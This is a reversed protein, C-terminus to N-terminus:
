EALTAGSFDFILFVKGDASFTVPVDKNEILVIWNRDILTKVSDGKQVTIPVGNYAASLTAPFFHGNSVAPDFEVWSELKKLEGTVSGKVGDWTIKINDDILDSVTKGGGVCLPQSKETVRVSDAGIM